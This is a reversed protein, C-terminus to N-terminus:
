AYMDEVYDGLMGRRALLLETDDKSLLDEADETKLWDLITGAIDQASAREIEEPDLYTNAWSDTQLESYSLNVFYESISKVAQDALIYEWATAAATGRGLRDREASVIGIVEQGKDSDFLEAVTWIEEKAPTPM